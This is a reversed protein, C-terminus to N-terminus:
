FMAIEILCPNCPLDLFSQLKLDFLKSHFWSFYKPSSIKGTVVWIPIKQFITGCRIHGSSQSMKRISPNKLPNHINHLNQLNYPNQLNHANQLNTLTSKSPKTGGAGRRVLSGKSDGEETELTEKSGEVGVSWVFCLVSFVACHVSSLVALVTCQMRKRARWIMVTLVEYIFVHIYAICGYMRAYDDELSTHM